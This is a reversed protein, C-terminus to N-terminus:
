SFKKWLSPAFLAFVAYLELRGMVMLVSLFIKSAPLLHGYNQTPGLQDFSPGTNYLCACVGAVLSKFSMNHELAAFAVISFTTTLGILVAYSIVAFQDSEKLVRGNVRLTKVLNSRISKEIQAWAVKICIVLRIVKFGGATSGSCGGIIMVGLLIIKTPMMWTDYDASAFGTSTMLSVVQFASKTISDFLSTANNGEFLEIAILLTAVTLILFYVKVESNRSMERFPSSGIKLLWLFSTGGLAMFFIIIWEILPSQFAEISASRTSFGGTALTTFAHCIADYWSMGALALCIFCAITLSVYLAFIKSVGSQVRSTDIDTSAASSENTFLIKAGAGLSSLLAVFFVVVGLGGIWQSFSRWFLLSRPWSEFDTFVSAGTTTLGSTSEFFADALSTGPMAFLYPLAGITSCVFWSVGILAFAEKRFMRNKANRGLYALVTGISASIAISYGFGAIAQSESDTDPYLFGVGLSILFAASIALCMYGLLRIVLPYNM